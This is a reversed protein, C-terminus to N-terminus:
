RTGAAARPGARAHGATTGAGYCCGEGRALEPGKHPQQFTTASVRGDYRLLVENHGDGDFDAIALGRPGYQVLTQVPGKTELTLPDVLEITDAASTATNSAVVLMPTCGALIPVTLGRELVRPEHFPQGTIGTVAALRFDSRMVVDQYGDGNVDLMTPNGGLRYSWQLAGSDLDFLDAGGAYVNCALELGPDADAQGIVGGEVCPLRSRQLEAGTRPDLRVVDQTALSSIGGFVADPRSDAQATVLQVSPVENRWFLAGAKYAAVGRGDTLLLENGPTDDLTQAALGRGAAATIDLPLSRVLAGTRRDYAVLQQGDSSGKRVAVVLDNVGDGDFDAVAAYKDFDGEVFFAQEYANQQTSWQLGMFYYNTMVLLRPHAEPPLEYPVINRIGDMAIGASYKKVLQLDAAAAHGAIAFVALFPLLLRSVSHASYLM